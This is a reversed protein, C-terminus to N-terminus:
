AGRGAAGGAGVVTEVVVTAVVVVEVDDVDDVVDGIVTVDVVVGAGAPTDVGGAAVEGAVVVGAGPDDLSPPSGRPAMMPIAIPPATIRAAIAIRIMTSTLFNAADEENAAELPDDVAYM